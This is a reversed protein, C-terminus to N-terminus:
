QKFRGRVYVVASVGALLIIGFALSSVPGVCAMRSAAMPSGPVQSFGSLVNPFLQWAFGDLVSCPVISMPLSALELYFPYVFGGSPGFTFTMPAYGLFFPLFLLFPACTVRWYWRVRLPRVGVVFMLWAAIYLAEFAFTAWARKARGLRGRFEADEREDYPPVKSAKAMTARLAELAQPNLANVKVSGFYKACDSRHEASEEYLACLSRYGVCNAPSPPQPNTLQDRVNPLDHLVDEVPVSYLLSEHHTQTYYYAKGEVVPHAGGFYSFTYHGKFEPLQVGCVYEWYEASTGSKSSEFHWAKFALLAFTALILGVGVAQLLLRSIRKM